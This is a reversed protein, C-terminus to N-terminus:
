LIEELAKGLADIHETKTLETACVLLDNPQDAYWRSLAVGCLINKQTLAAIVDAAPRPLRAVFENYIPASFPFSVGKIQALRERLQVARELSLAAVQKL